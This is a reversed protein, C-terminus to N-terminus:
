RRQTSHRALLREQVQTSLVAAVAQMWVLAACMIRPPPPRLLDLV